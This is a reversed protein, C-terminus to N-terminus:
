AEGAIAADILSVIRDGLKYSSGRVCSDRLQWMTNKWLEVDARAEDREREATEARAFDEKQQDRILRNTAIVRAVEAEAAALKARLSHIVDAAKEADAPTAFVDRLKRELADLAEGSLDTM